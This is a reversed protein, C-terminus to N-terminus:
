GLPELRPRQQLAGLADQLAVELEAFLVGVEGQLTFAALAAFGHFLDRLGDDEAFLELSISLEVETTDEGGSLKARRRNRGSNDIEIATILLKLQVDSEFDRVSRASTLHITKKIKKKERGRRPSLRCGTGAVQRDRLAGRRTREILSRNM